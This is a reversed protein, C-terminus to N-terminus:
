KLLQGQGELDGKKKYSDLAKEWQNLKENWSEQLEVNYKEEAFRLIGEAARPQGLQTNLRILSEVTKSSPNTQFEEEKYYLAKAYASCDEARKGM